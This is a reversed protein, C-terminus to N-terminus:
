SGSGINAMGITNTLTVASAAGTPQITITVQVSTIAARAQWTTLNAPLLETGTKDFYRFVTTTSPISNCLSRTTAANLPVFDWHGNVGAVATLAAQQKEVLAGSTADYTVLVPSEGGSLNVYAYFSILMPAAKIIAPDSQQGGVIPNALPDPTAARIMRAAQNMGNSAQRTGGDISQSLSVTHTAVVFLSVALGMVVTTLAIAVLLEILSLGADRGQTVRSRLLRGLRIM